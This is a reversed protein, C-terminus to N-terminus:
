EKERGKDRGRNRERQQRDRQLDEKFKDKLYERGGAKVGKFYQSDINKSKMLENFAQPQEKAVIYGNNFGKLYEPDIDIIEEAQM